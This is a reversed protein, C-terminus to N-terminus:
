AASAFARVASSALSLWSATSLAVAANFAAFSFSTLASSCGTVTSVEERSFAIASAFASL